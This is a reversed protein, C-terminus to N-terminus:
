YVWMFLIEKPDETIKLAIPPGSVLFKLTVTGPLPSVIAFVVSAEWLQSLSVVGQTFLCNGNPLFYGIPFPLTRSPM